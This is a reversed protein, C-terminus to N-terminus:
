ITAIIQTAAHVAARDDANSIKRRAYRSCQRV